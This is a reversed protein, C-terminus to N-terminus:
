LKSSKAEKPTAGADATKLSTTSAKSETNCKPVCPQTCNKKQEPTCKQVCDPPCPNTCNQKNSANSVATMIEDVSVAATSSKTVAAATSKDASKSCAAPNCSQASALNATLMFTLLLGFFLIGSKM